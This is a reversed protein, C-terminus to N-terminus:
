RSPVLVGADIAGVLIAVIIGIPVVLLGTGIMGLRRGMVIQHRNSFTQDSADIERLLNSGLIWAIPAIIQCMILGLAGLMLTLTGLPHEVPGATPDGHQDAAGDGTGDPPEPRASTM